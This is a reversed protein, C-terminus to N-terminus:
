ALTYYIQGLKQDFVNMSFEVRAMISRISTPVNKLMLNCKVLKCEKNFEGMLTVAGLLVM